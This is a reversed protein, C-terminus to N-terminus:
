NLNILIYKFPHNVLSFGYVTPFTRSKSLCIVLSSAITCCSYGWFTNKLPRALSAFCTEGPWKAHFIAASNCLASNNPHELASICLDIDKGWNGVLFFNNNSGKLPKLLDCGFTTVQLSYSLAIKPLPSAFSRGSQGIDQVLKLTHYRSDVIDNFIPCHIVISSLYQKIPFFFM